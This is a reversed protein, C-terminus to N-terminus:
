SANFPLTSYLSLDVRSIVAHYREQFCMACRVAFSVKTQNFYKPMIVTVFQKPDHVVFARGHPQWQVISYDGERDMADLMQHLRWPFPVSVGGKAISKDYEDQEESNAMSNNSSWDQQDHHRSYEGPLPAMTIIPSFLTGGEKHPNHFTDESHSFLLEKLRSFLLFCNQM